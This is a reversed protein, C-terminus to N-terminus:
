YSPKDNIYKLLGNKIQRELEIIDEIKSNFDEMVDAMKDFKESLKEVREKFIIISLSVTSLEEKLKLIEDDRNKLLEELDSNKTFLTRQVNQLEELNQVGAFDIKKEELDNIISDTQESLSLLGSAM